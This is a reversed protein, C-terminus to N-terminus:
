YMLQFEPCMPLNVMPPSNRHSNIMLESTTRLPFTWAATAELQNNEPKYKVSMMIKNSKGQSAGHQVEEIPFMTRPMM